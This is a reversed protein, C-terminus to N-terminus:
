TAIYKDRPKMYFFKLKRKMKEEEPCSGMTPLTVAELEEGL